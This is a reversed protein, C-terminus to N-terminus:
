NVRDQIAKLDIIFQNIVDSKAIDIIDEIDNKNERWAIIDKKKEWKDIIEQIIKYKM